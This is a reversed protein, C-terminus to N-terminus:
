QGVEDRLLQPWYQVLRTVFRKLSPHPLHRLYWRRFGYELAFAVVLVVWCGAEPYWALANRPIAFPVRVGFAALLGGPQACLFLFMLALAQFGVVCAWYITIGRAYRAVGPLEMREDGEVVRICRAILPERRHVLTRAFFFCLGALILIPLGSLALQVRGTLAPILMLAAVLLWLAIGGGSRRRLVPLGLAILLLVIAAISLAPQHLVGGLLASLAYGILLLLM